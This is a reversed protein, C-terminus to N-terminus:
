IVISFLVAVEWFEVISFDRKWFVFFVKIPMEVFIIGLLGIIRFLIWCCENPFDLDVCTNFGFDEGVAAEGGIYWCIEMRTSLAYALM